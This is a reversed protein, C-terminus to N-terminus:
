ALKIQNSKKIQQSSYKFTITLKSCMQFTFHLLIFVIECKQWVTLQM